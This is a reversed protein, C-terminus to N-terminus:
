DTRSSESSSLRNANRQKAIGSLKERLINIRVEISALAADTSTERIYQRAQIYASM